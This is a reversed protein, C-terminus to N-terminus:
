KRRDSGSSCLGDVVTRWPGRDQAKRELQKWTLGSQTIDTEYDRRWTNKPRGRKRRGQPNWRLAHRTISTSPRRLTHGIWGWRRRRIQEEVPQENTRQWLDNNSITDPWHINLIRRMCRNIFSQVRTMTTKTIRWTESGYLLVPKINSKFIRIKTQQSIVKSSWINKLQIYSARAKSIRARVDAETGGKKDIISGLYTFSQVEELATGWLDVPDENSTGIRLIKTKGQHINLGLQTSTDALINTKEQMQKRNHSLLALDDAFDLDNLQTTLTWQIGNRRQATTTKLIWDIALLFLFPSLIGGQRVGTKVQFSRTLQGSHIVRCIMGEYSNRMINVLKEPIGYHRLLKWLTNRHLSDFAKEYDVFNIYLPTNWELSQEVIIRLTAIQDVCSRNPRFGAQEDRLQPDVARRIRELLIRNFIKGPVSLLMIGRYNYCQSLDGKKPIKVLYGEKWDTPGEEKEWIKAFLPHLMEVSTDIDAKLAEAPIGDPGAAKRNKLRATAERIEQKSPEECNIDIDTEAPQIDPPNPPTPRNLLEEFYEAWREQQQDLRTITKGEKDKIPRESRSFKGSLKRTTGYLERMNGKEAAEEAEKALNDIYNRKDKKANRKVKRNAQTYEKQAKAKTARTRSNNVGAKKHRREEINRLTEASIWEKHHRKKIGIVEKCTTTLTERIREWQDQQDEEDSSLDQLAQYRNKLKLTFEERIKTNELLHINFQQKKSTTEMWHKKLKLKLTASLLHHDSAIDAGRRVRLDQLTRRFKRTICFHDIQNETVRDPSAWTAKHIRKHPFVSGGIVLNNLACTDVFREGNENMEGLGHKGMVKEFGTNDGGIKANFDGMLINIDKEKQQELISQLRSYFDDKKGDDSDNTPAYCQIVNLKIKRKTTRLTATIIRPGHAEWGILAKRATTSLLLGVGETHPAKEEEHGSYLLLEGTQLGQQGSQTWRSESIGLLDLKNRKMEKAAQILKGTELLTRVNWAGIRIRDRTSLLPIPETVEQCIEDCLTMKRMSLGEDELASTKATTKTKTVLTKKHPLPTLGVGLGWGPPGPAAKPRAGRRFGARSPQVQWPYLGRGTYSESDYLCM